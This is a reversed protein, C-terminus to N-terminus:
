ADALLGTLGSCAVGALASILCRPLLKAYEAVALGSCAWPMHALSQSHVPLACAGMVPEWAGLSGCFLRGGLLCNQRDGRLKDKARVLFVPDRCLLSRGDTHGM